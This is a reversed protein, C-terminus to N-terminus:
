RYMPPITRLYQQEQFAEGGDVSFNRWVAIFRSEEEDAIFRGERQRRHFPGGSVVRSAECVMTFVSNDNGVEYYGLASKIAVIDYASGDDNEPLQLYDLCEKALGEDIEITLPLSDLRLLRDKNMHPIRYNNSGKVQLIERLCTQLTLFVKNLTQPSLEEYSSCVNRVLNDVGKEPKDDQLSQIERIFGLNLVNTDPSNPPQCIIKMNFGQANVTAEFDKDHNSIHPKVNDQQIFIEKSAHHPWKDSIAPIIKHVICDRIISKISQIHKTELTGKDRNKSKRKASELTTFPFIGIKGDFTTQGDQAFHPRAVVCMFMVKTIFRKSKCSRYSEDEDALLYYRDSCKTMYFWKEDIHVVNHMPQFKVKEQELNPQLQSLSWKLRALKNAETLTPKIANTHPKIQKEKVWRVLTTKSVDFKTAM